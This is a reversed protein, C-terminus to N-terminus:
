DLQAVILASPGLYSFIKLQPFTASDATPVSSEGSYWHIPSIRLSLEEWTYLHFSLLGFNQREIQLRLLVGRM